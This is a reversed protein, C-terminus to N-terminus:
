DLVTPQVFASLPVAKLSAQATPPVPTFPSLPPGTKLPDAAAPKTDDRTDSLPEKRTHKECALYM